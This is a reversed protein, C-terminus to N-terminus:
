KQGMFKLKPLTISARIAQRRASEEAERKEMRVRFNHLSIAMIAQEENEVIQGEHLQGTAAGYTDKQTGRSM